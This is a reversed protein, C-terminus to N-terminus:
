AGLESELVSDFEEGAIQEVRKRMTQFEETHDWSLSNLERVHDSWQKVFDERSIQKENGFCNKVTITDM